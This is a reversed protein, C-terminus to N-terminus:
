LFKGLLHQPNYGPKRDQKCPLHELIHALSWTLCFSQLHVLIFHPYKSFVFDELLRCLWFMNNRFMHCDLVFTKFENLLLTLENIVWVCIKHLWTGPTVNFSLNWCELKLSEIPDFCVLCNNYIHVTKDKNSYKTPVVNGQRQSLLM